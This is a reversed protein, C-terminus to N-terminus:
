AVVARPRREPSVTEDRGTVAWAQTRSSGLHGALPPVPVHRGVVRPEELWAAPKEAAAVIRWGHDALPLLSNGMSAM